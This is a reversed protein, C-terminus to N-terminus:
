QLSRRVKVSEAPILIQSGDELPYLLWTPQRELEMGQGQLLRDVDQPLLSDGTPWVDRLHEPSYVPISVSESNGNGVLNLEMLPRPKRAGTDTRLVPATEATLSSEMALDGASESQVPGALQEPAPENGSLAPMPDVRRMSQVLVPSLLGVLVSAAVLPWSIARWATRKGAPYIMAPSEAKLYERCGRSVLRDEAFLLALERWGGESEDLRRFLDRCEEPLLEGDVCRQLELERARQNTQIRNKM